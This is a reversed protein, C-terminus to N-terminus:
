RMNDLARRRDRAHLAADAASMRVAAQVALRRSETNPAGFQAAVDTTTETLELAAERSGEDEFLALEAAEEVTLQQDLPDVSTDECAALVALGLFVAIPHRHTRMM